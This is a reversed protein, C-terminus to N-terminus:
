NGENSSPTRAAATKYHSLTDAYNAIGDLLAEAIKQRYAGKKLRAEEDANTLFGIEVLVSPVQAGILVLFPARKVGRDRASGNKTALEQTTRQIHSAFDRSEDAKENKAIQQVLDSLDAITKDSAANERAAVDMDAKAGSFNLYYTEFGSVSTARSSNAHISLFLDAREKNAVAPRDQLPIFTDDNRTYVVESGLKHEILKGLRLTVDLVLDKEYLGHPSITGVDKGGHGADLVVRRLKLGLARTLTSADNAPEPMEVEPKDPTAAKDIPPEIKTAVVPVKTKSPPPAKKVTVAPKAKVPRSVVPMSWFPPPEIESTKAFKVVTLRPVAILPAPPLPHVPPPLFAKLVKKPSIQKAEAAKTTASAPPKSQSVTDVKATAPGDHSTGPDATRQGPSDSAGKARITMVLRHERDMWNSEFEAPDSLDLVVRTTGPRTLAVRIGKVLGKSPISQQRQGGPVTDLLDFYLREPEHLVGWNYKVESGITLVIRTAETRPFVQIRSLTERDPRSAPEACLAPALVTLLM